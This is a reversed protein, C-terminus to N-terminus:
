WLLLDVLRTCHPDNSDKQREAEQALSPLAALLATMHDSVKVDIGIVEHVDRGEAYIRMREPGTFLFGRVAPSPPEDVYPEAVAKLFGGAREEYSDGGAKLRKGKVSVVTMGLVTSVDSGGHLQTGTAAHVVTRLVAGTSRVHKGDRLPVEYAVYASLDYEGRNSLVLRVAPEPQTVPLVGRVCAGGVLPVAIYPIFHRVTDYQAEAVDDPDLPM